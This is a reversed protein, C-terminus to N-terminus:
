EANEGDSMQLYQEEADTQLSKLQQVAKVQADPEKEMLEIIDTVGNFLLHYLKKYDVM